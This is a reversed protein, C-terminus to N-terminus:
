EFGEAALIREAPSPHTHLLFQVLRNPAPDGCNKVVLARELAIFAEPDRTLELAFLDAEREFARSVCNSVPLSLLFFAFALAAVRACLAPSGELGFLRPALLFFVGAAVLSLALGKWVHGKRWHGLEHAVVSLLAPLERPLTDYLVIRKTPGLGTFYANAATTRTSADSWYVAEIEMGAARAVSAVEGKVEEEVPRFRSFLPDVVVPWLLVLAGVVVSGAAWFAPGWWALFKRAALAVGVGFVIGLLVVIGGGGAWRALFHFFSLRTLGFAKGVLAWRLASAPLGALAYSGAVLAAIGADAAGAALLRRRGGGAIRAHLRELLPSFKGALLALVALRMLVGILFCFLRRRSCEKGRAREEASFHRRAAEQFRGAALEPRGPREDSCGSSLLVAAALLTLRRRM